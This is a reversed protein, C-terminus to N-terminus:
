HQATRVSKGGAPGTSRSAKRDLSIPEAITEVPEDANSTEPGAEGEAAKESADRAALNVAEMLLAVRSDWVTTQGLADGSLVVRVAPSQEAVVSTERSEPLTDTPQPATATGMLRSDRLEAFAFVVPVVLAVALVAEAMQEGFGPRSPWVAIM